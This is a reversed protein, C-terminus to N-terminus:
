YDSSLSISQIKEGVSEACSQYESKAYEMCSVLNQLNTILGQLMEADVMVQTMFADHAQGEWMTGLDMLCRIVQDKATNLAEVQEQVASVDLGLQDTSIEINM